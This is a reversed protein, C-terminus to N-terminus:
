VYIKKYKSKFKEVLPCLDTVQDDLLQTEFFLDMIDYPEGRLYSRIKNLIKQYSTYAFKCMEIKRDYNKMKLFGQLLIGSGSISGLIVPNLTISGVIVGTSTLSISLLNLSLRLKKFKNHARQYCWTKQHYHKYLKKFRKVEYEKLKPDIHNFNFISNTKNDVEDKPSCMKGKSGKPHKLPDVDGDVQDHLSSRNLSDMGLQYSKERMSPM